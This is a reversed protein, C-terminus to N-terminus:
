DTTYNLHLVLFENTTTGKNQIGINQYNMYVTAFEPIANWQAPKTFGITNIIAFGGVVSPRYETKTSITITDDKTWGGSRQLVLDAIIQKGIRVVRSDGLMTVGATTLSASTLYDSTINEPTVKETLQQNTMAYPPFSTDSDEALKVLPKITKNIAQGNAIRIYCAYSINDENPATFESSYIGTADTGTNPSIGASTNDSKKITLGVFWTTTTADGNGDVLKYKVGKQLINKAGDAYNWGTGTFWITVDATATGEGTTVSISDDANRTYTVGAVSGSSANCPLWQHVGTKAYSEWDVRTDDCVPHVLNNTDIVKRFENAM